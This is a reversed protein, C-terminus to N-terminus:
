AQVWRAGQDDFVARRHGQPHLELWDASTVRAHVVAFHERVQGGPPLDRGSAMSSGAAAAAELPTGPPLPSLYDQAAPTLKIRLWRSSAALGSTELQLSVSLRLQWGLARYWMVLKGRPHQQMQAVKAARSDTYFTLQRNRTDAERLIVVRADAAEGDTTALVLSRWEHARETTASELQQWIAAQVEALSQPRAQM